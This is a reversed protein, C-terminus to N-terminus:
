SARWDYLALACVATLALLGALPFPALMGAVVPVAWPLADLLVTAMAQAVLQPPADLMLSIATFAIGLAVAIAGLTAAFLRLLYVPM